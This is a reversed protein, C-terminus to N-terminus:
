PLTRECRLVREALDITVRHHDLVDHGVIIDVLDLRDLEAPLRGRVPHEDIQLGGLELGALFGAQPTWQMWRSQREVAVAVDNHRAWRASVFTGDWNGTDILVRAHCHGAVQGEALCAQALPWLRVQWGSQPAQEGLPAAGAAPEVVARGADLDLTLRLHQLLDTGIAMQGKARLLAPSDGVFVPVNRIVLNGLRLEPVIGPVAEFSAFGVMESARSATVVGAAHAAPASLLTHQAGTDIVVMPLTVDGIQAEIGEFQRAHFGSWVTSRKLELETALSGSTVQYPAHGALAECWFRLASLAPEATSHKLLQLVRPDDLPQAQRLRATTWLRLALVMDHRNKAALGASESPSLAVPESSATLQRALEIAAEEAAQTRGLALLADIRALQADADDPSHMARDLAASLKEALSRRGAGESLSFGTGIEARGPVAGASVEAADAALAQIPDVVAAVLFIALLAVALRRKHGHFRRNACGDTM